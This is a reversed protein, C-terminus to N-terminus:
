EPCGVRAAPAPDVLEMERPAPGDTEDLLWVRVAHPIGADVPAILWVTRPWLRMYELDSASPAAPRDPHSHYFGIITEATGRLSRRVNIVAGPDILFRTTQAETEARNPCRVVRTVRAVGDAALHGVLLGCAERPYDAAAHAAIAERLRGALQVQNMM